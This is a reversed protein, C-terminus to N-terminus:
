SKAGLLAEIGYYLAKKAVEDQDAKERIRQIFLGIINDANEQYLADFDYDPVSQDEVELVNGIQKLAEKDFRVAEDRVGQILFSYIHHAGHEKIMRKAQDILSGNTSTADVVLEKRIYQRVSNPIFKISTVTKGERDRTIEGLIYGREGTENRDLPEFSGTYAASSSLIQPKHLHGLAIYDFGSDLLRKRNIPVNKEDGGHALLIHIRKNMEPRVTDYLPDLYDRKLFSLGYVEVDLEDYVKIEITDKQFMYVKPDWEFGHYNSRAGMYDHNGAMIVAKATQLKSLYYNAEKLERVLPQKHFLDGAILLLDAREHNCLEIIKEFNEWIEKGRQASWPMSSDPAAGLHIDAIHIFKM